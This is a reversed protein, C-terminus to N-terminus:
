KVTAEVISIRTEGDNIDLFWYVNETEDGGFGEKIIRNYEETDESDYKLTKKLDKIINDKIKLAEKVTNALYCATVKADEDEFIDTKYTVVVAYM